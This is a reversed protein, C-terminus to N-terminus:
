LDPLLAMRGKLTDLLYWSKCEECVALMRDPLQPDPMYLSLTEECNPCTPSSRTPPPAGLRQGGHDLIPASGGISDSVPDEEPSHLSLMM